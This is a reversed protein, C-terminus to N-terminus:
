NKDSFSRNEGNLKSQLEMYSCNLNYTLDNVLLVCVKNKKITWYAIINATNEAWM